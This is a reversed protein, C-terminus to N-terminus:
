TSSFPSCPINYSGLLLIKVIEGAKKRAKEEMQLENDIADSVRKAEAEAELRIHREEDTENPPPATVHALPDYGDVSRRSKFNPSPM